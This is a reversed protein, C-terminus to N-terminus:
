IILDQTYRISYLGATTRLAANTITMSRYSRPTVTVHSCKYVATDAVTASLDNSDDAFCFRLVLYSRRRPLNKPAAPLFATQPASTVGNWCRAKLKIATM